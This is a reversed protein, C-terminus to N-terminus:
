QTYFDELNNVVKLASKKKEFWAAYALYRSQDALSQHISPIKQAIEQESLPHKKLLHLVAYGRGAEMVQGMEGEKLTFAKYIAKSSSGLYPLYAERTAESNVTYKL